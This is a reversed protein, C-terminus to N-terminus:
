RQEIAFRRALWLQGLGAAGYQRFRAAHPVADIPQAGLHFPQHMAELRFDM